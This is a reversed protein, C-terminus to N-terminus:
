SYFGNYSPIQVIEATNKLFYKRGVEDTFSFISDFEIIGNGKTYVTINTIQAAINYFTEADFKAPEPSGIRLRTIAEKISSPMSGIYMPLSLISTGCLCSDGVIDSIGDCSNSALPYGSKQWFVKFYNESDDAVHLV